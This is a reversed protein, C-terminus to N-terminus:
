CSFWMCSNYTLCFLVVWFIWFVCWTTWFLPLPMRTLLLHHWLGLIMGISDLLPIMKGLLGYHLLLLLLLFRQLHCVLSLLLLLVQERKIPFVIIGQCRIRPIAFCLSLFFNYFWVLLSCLNLVSKGRLLFFRGTSHIFGTEVSQSVEPFVLCSHNPSWYSPGTPVAESTRRWNRQWTCMKQYTFSSVGVVTIYENM